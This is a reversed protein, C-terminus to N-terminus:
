SRRRQPARHPPPPKRSGSRPMRGAERANSIGPAVVAAGALTLSGLFGRRDITRDPRHSRM